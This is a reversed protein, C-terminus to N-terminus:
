KSVEEHKTSKGNVDAHGKLLSIILKELTISEKAAKIKLAKHIQDPFTKILLNM